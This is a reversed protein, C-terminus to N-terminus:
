SGMRGTDKPRAKESFLNQKGANRSGKGRDLEDPRVGGNWQSGAKQPPITDPGITTKRNSLHHNQSKAM